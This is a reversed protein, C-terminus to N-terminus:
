FWVFVPLVLWKQLVFLRMKEVGVNKEGGCGALEDVIVVILSTNIIKVTERNYQEVHANYGDINRM